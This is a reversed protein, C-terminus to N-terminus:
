FLVNQPANLCGDIFDDWDGIESTKIRRLLDKDDTLEYFPHWFFRNDDSKM